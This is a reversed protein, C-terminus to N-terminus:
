GERTKLHKPTTINPPKLYEPRFLTLNEFKKKLYKESSIAHLHLASCRTESFFARPDALIQRTKNSGPGSFIIKKNNSFHEDFSGEDIIKAAPQEVLGGKGDYLAYYVEMRRADIMPCYLAEDDREKEYTAIALADLTRVGILPVGLSYCLGKAVSAGVRLSTYSGPGTSLAVANLQALSIRAEELCQEILLTMVKSHENPKASEQSAVTATGLSISISCVETASEINLLYPRQIM